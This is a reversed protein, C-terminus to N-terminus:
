TAAPPEGLRAGSGACAALLPGAAPGAFRDGETRRPVIGDACVAGGAEVPPDFAAMIRAATKSSRPPPTPAQINTWCLVTCVVGFSCATLNKAAARDLSQFVTKAVLSVM